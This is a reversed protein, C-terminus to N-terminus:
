SQNTRPPKAPLSTENWSFTDVVTGSADRLTVRDKENGLVPTSLGWFLDTANDTGQGTHITVPVSPILTRGGFRYEVGGSEALTWGSLSVPQNANAMLTVSEGNLNSRDDGPADYVVRVISVSRPLAPTELTEDAWLGKRATRASSEIALYQDKRAFSEQVYTRAFGESLLLAGFDAGDGTTVMALFRGYRDRTGALCDTTLTVQQGELRDAAFARAREGWDALIVPNNVGPFKEGTNGEMTIEPTDIGLVRVRDGRGDPYVVALTDGDVAHSV